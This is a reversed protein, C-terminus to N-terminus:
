TNYSKELMLLVLKELYNLKLKCWLLDKKMNEIIKYCDKMDDSEIIYPEIITTEEDECSSNSYNDM